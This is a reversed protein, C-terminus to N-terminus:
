VRSPSSALASSIVASASLMCASSKRQPVVRGASGSAPSRGPWTKLCRSTLLPASTGHFSWCFKAGNM